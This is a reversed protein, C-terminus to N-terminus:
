IASSLLSLIKSRQEKSAAMLRASNKNEEPLFEAICKELEDLLVFFSDDLTDLQDMMEAESIEDNDFAKLLKDTQIEVNREAEDTAVVLNELKDFM